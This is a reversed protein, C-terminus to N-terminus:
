QSTKTDPARTRSGSAERVKVVTSILEDVACIFFHKWSFQSNIWLKLETVSMNSTFCLYFDPRQHSHHLLNWVVYVCWREFENDVWGLHLIQLSSASFLTTVWFKKEEKWHAVVARQSWKCIQAQGTIWRDLGGVWPPNFFVFSIFYLLVFCWSFIRECVFIRDTETDTLTLFSGM